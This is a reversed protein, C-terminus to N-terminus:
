VLFLIYIRYGSSTTIVQAYLSFTLSSKVLGM